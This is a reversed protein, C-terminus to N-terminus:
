ARICAHDGGPGFGAVSVMGAAERLDALCGEGFLLSPQPMLRATFISGSEVAEEGRPIHSPSTAHLATNPRHIVTRQQM